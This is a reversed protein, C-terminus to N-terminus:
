PYNNMEQRFPRIGGVVIQCVKSQLFRSPSDADANLASFHILRKVGAVRCAEAIVRAGDVHVDSFKFNRCVLYTLPMNSCACLDSFITYWYYYCKKTCVRDM